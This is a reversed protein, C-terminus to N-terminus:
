SIFIWKQEINILLVTQPIIPPKLGGVTCCYNFVSPKFQPDAEGRLPAMM